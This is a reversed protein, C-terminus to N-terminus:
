IVASALKLVSPGYAELEAQRRTEMVDTTAWKPIQVRDLKCVADFVILEPRIVSHRASLCLSILMAAYHGRYLRAFDEPGAGYAHALNNFEVDQHEFEKDLWEGVLTFDLDAILLALETAATIYSDGLLSFAREFESYYFSRLTKAPHPWIGAEEWQRLSNDSKLNCILSRPELGKNRSLIGFALCIPEGPLGSRLMPSSTLLHQPVSVIGRSCRRQFGLDEGWLLSIAIGDASPQYVGSQLRSQPMQARPSSNDAGARAKLLDTLDEVILGFPLGSFRDVPHIDTRLDSRALMRWDERTGVFRVM